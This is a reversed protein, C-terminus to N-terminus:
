QFTERRDTGTWILMTKAQFRASSWVLGAVCVEVDGGVVGDSGTRKATMVSERILTEGRGALQLRGCRQQGVTTATSVLAVDNGTEKTIM